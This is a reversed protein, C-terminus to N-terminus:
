SRKEEASVYGIVRAMFGAKELVDAFRADPEGEWVV